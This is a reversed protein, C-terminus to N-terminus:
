VPNGNEDVDPPTQEFNPKATHEPYAPATSPTSIPANTETEIKELDGWENLAYTKPHIYAIIVRKGAVVDKKTSVQVDKNVWSSSEDGFTEILANISTQNLTVNKEGNRTMISFVQQEGYDGSVTDGENLIRVVDNTMIDADYDKGEYSYPEKRAFAGAVSTKKVMKM